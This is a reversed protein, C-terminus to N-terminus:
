LAKDERIKWVGYASSCALFLGVTPSFASYVYKMIFEDAADPLFGSAAVIFGEALCVSFILGLGLIAQGEFVQNPTLNKGELADRVSNDVQFPKEAARAAKKAKREEKLSKRKVKNEMAAIADEDSEPQAQKVDDKAARPVVM